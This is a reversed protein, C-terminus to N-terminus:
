SNYVKGRLECTVFMLKNMQPLFFRGWACVNVQIYLKSFCKVSVQIYRKSFYKM